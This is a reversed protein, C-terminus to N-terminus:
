GHRCTKYDVEEMEEDDERRDRWDAEPFSWRAASSVRPPSYIMAYSLAEEYDASYRDLLSPLDDPIKLNSQHLPIKPLSSVSLTDDDYDDHVSSQEDDNENEDDDEDDEEWDMTAPLPPQNLQTPPYPHHSTVPPQPLPLSDDPRSNHRQHHFYHPQQHSEEITQQQVPLHHRTTTTETEDALLPLASALLLAVRRGKVRMSPKPNGAKEDVFDFSENEQNEIVKGPGSTSCYLHLFLRHQVLLCVVVIIHHHHPLKKIYEL